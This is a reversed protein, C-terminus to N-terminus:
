SLERSGEYAGSPLKGANLLWHACFKYGDGVVLGSCGVGLEFSMVVRGDFQSHPRPKVIPIIEM